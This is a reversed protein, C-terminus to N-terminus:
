ETYTDENQAKKTDKLNGTQASFKITHGSLISKVIYPTNGIFNLIMLIYFKINDLIPSGTSPYSMYISNGMYMKKFDQTDRYFQLFSDIKDKYVLSIINCESCIAGWPMIYFEKKCTPCHTSECMECM